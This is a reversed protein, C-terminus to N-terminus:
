SEDDEDDGAVDRNNLEMQEMLSKLANEEQQSTARPEVKVALKGNKETIVKRVTEIAVNVTEIGEKKDLATTLMVYLPPAILKIKVPVEETSSAEGALLADRIADIGEESFCTVEIDARIRIPQPTLKRKIVTMLAQKTSPDIEINEFIKDPEAIAMRFAEHTTNFPKKGLPWAIKQNLTLLKQGTTEALHRMISYVAKGKSYREDCKVVDEPTVRRRSLDIYGKEKDACFCM